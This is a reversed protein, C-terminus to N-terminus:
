LTKIQIDTEKVLSDIAGLLVLANIIIRLGQAKNNCNPM